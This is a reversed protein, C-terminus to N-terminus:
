KLSPSRLATKSWIFDMAKGIAFSGALAIVINAILGYWFVYTSYNGSLNTRYASFPFGYDTTINSFEDTTSSLMFNLLLFITIGVLFGLIGARQKGGSISRSLAFYSLAAYLITNSVVVLWTKAEYYAPDDPLFAGAWLYIYAFPTRDLLTGKAVNGGAADVIFVIAILVPNTLIGILLAIIINLAKLQM